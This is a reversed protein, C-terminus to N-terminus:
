RTSILECSVLSVRLPHGATILAAALPAGGTTSGAPNGGGGATVTGQPLTPCFIRMMFDEFINHDEYYLSLFTRAARGEYWAQWVLVAWSSKTRCRALGGDTKNNVTVRFLASLVRVGVSHGAAM